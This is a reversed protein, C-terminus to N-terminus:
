FPLSQRKFCFITPLGLESIFSFFLLYTFLIGSIEFRISRHMRVRNFKLDKFLYVCNKERLIYTSTGYIRAFMMRLYDIHIYTHQVVSHVVYLM